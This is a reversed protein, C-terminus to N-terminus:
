ARRAALAAELEALRPSDDNLARAAALAQGAEELRDLAILAEALNERWLPEGPQTAVAQEFAALAQAHDDAGELANGLATYDSALTERLADWDVGPMTQWEEALLAQGAEVARRWASPDAGDAAQEAEESIRLYDEAAAQFAAMRKAGLALSDFTAQAGQTRCARLLTRRDEILASMAPDDQHRQAMADIAPEIGANLLIPHAEVLSRLGDADGAGVFDALLQDTEQRLARLLARREALRQEAQENSGHLQEDLVRQGEESYLLNLRAAFFQRARSEDPAQLFAILAQAIPSRSGAEQQDHLHRFTSLRQRLGRAFAAQGNHEAHKIREEIMAMLPQEMLYPVRQWFDYLEATSEVRAFQQVMAALKAETSDPPTSVTEPDPM